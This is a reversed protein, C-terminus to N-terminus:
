PWGVSTSEESCEVKRRYTFIRAAIYNVHSFVTKFKPVKRTEKSYDLRSPNLIINEAFFIM